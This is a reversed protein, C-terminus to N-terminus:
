KGPIQILPNSGNPVVFTNGNKGLDKLTDLQKSQLVEPTLSAAIERNADAEAKAQVVQQQASIKTAELEAEAQQQKQQAVLVNKISKEVDSSYNINQLAGVTIKVGYPKLAKNTSEIIKEQAEGQKDGRFPIADYQAPVKRAASIVTPVIVQSSFNEQSRYDEYIGKVRDADINYTLQLDYNSTAGGKVAATIQQGNVDGGTYSPTDRGNGAFSLKQSALDFEVAKTWPAKFGAGPETQVGQVTGDFSVFVKATNVPNTYFSSGFLIGGGIILLVVGIGTGILGTNKSKKRQTVGVGIAVFAILVLFAVLITSGM